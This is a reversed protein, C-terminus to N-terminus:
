ILPCVIHQLSSITHINCIDGILFWIDGLRHNMSIRQVETLNLIHEVDAGFRASERRVIEQWEICGLFQQFKYLNRISIM